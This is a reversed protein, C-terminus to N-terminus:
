RISFSIDSSGRRFHSRNGASNRCRAKSRIFFQSFTFTRAFSNPTDRCSNYTQFCCASPRFFALACPALSSGRSRRITSNSFVTPSNFPTMPWFVNSSSKKAPAKLLISSDRRLFPLVPAVADVGFGMPPHLRLASQADLPHALQRRYTSGAEVPVPLLLSGRFRLHRQAVDDLPYRDPMAEISVAADRYQHLTLSVLHAGFFHAAQHLLIIQQRHTAPFKHRSGFGIMVEHHM